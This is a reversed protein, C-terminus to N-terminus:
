KERHNMRDLKSKNLEEKRWKEELQTNPPEPRHSFIESKLIGKKFNTKQPYWWSSAERRPLIDFVDVTYLTYMCSCFSEGSTDAWFFQLSLLLFRVVWFFFVAPVLRRWGRWPRGNWCWDIGSACRAATPHMQLLQQGVNPRGQGVRPAVADWGSISTLLTPLSPEM